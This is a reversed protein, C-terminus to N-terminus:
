ASAGPMVLPAAIVSRPVTVEPWQLAPKPVRLRVDSKRAM